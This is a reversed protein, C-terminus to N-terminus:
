ALCSEKNRGLTSIRRLAIGRKRKAAKREQILKHARECNKCCDIPDESPHIEYGYENHNEESKIYAYWKALCTPRQSYLEQGDADESTIWPDKNTSECGSLSRSIKSTLSVCESNSEAYQICASQYKNM